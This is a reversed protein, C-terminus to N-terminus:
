ACPQTSVEADGASALAKEVVRNPVGFGEPAEAGVSAAFVTTLVRGDPDVLPGGSNGSIVEGRFSTMLREVPGEGYSNQSEVAATSGLRAAARQLQDVGGPYGLVAGTTGRAPDDVLDLPALSLGPVRLVAVDNRPMYAIAFGDLESGGPMVVTTEEEGAVVHANTVVTEPGAVWGSGAVGLGCANGFVRVVSAAASDIGPAGLVSDDPARVNASPGRILPSPDIRNLANLLPGTPPVAEYLAALITSRQVDKRFEKLAPTNLVVAGVVWAVVFALGAMVLAGGLGDIAGISPRRVLREKFSAGVGELFAALVGGVLLGAALSVAPAYPSEAGGSLLLPGLRAGLIAGGVFGAVTLAGVLLGERWGLPLFLVALVVIAWDIGSM